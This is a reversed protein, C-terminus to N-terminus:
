LALRADLKAANLKSGASKPGASAAAELRSELLAFARRDKVIEM